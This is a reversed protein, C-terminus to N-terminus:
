PTGLKRAPRGCGVREGAQQWLPKASARSLRALGVESQFPSGGGVVATSRDRSRGVDHAIILPRFMPWTEPLDPHPKMVYSGSTQSQSVSQADAGRAAESQPQFARGPPVLPTRVTTARDYLEWGFPSAQDSQPIGLYERKFAAEGLASREQALFQETFTDVQDATAKLRIWSPDESSWAM